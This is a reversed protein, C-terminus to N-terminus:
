WDELDKSEEIMDAAKAAQRIGSVHGLLRLCSIVYAKAEPPVVPSDGVASLPWIVFRSSPSPSTSLLDTFQPISALIDFIMQHSVEKAAHQQIEARSRAVEDIAPDPEARSIIKSHTYIWGNTFLRIMRVANWHLAIRINPYRHAVGRFTWTPAKSPELVEYRYEPPFNEILLISQRDIELCTEVIKAHSPSSKSEMDARLNTFADTLAALGLVPNSLDMYTHAEDEISKFERPVRRKQQASSIRIYNAVQLFLRHGLPTEFQQKGRLRILAAAGQTHVTWQDPSHRGEFALTEFLGLLLISILTNDLIASEPSRLATNTLALADAYQRRARNMLQSDNMDMALSATAVCKTTVALPSHESTRLYLPPLYDFNSGELYSTLFFNIASFSVDPTPAVTMTCLEPFHHCSVDPLSNFSTGKLAMLSQEDQHKVERVNHEPEQSTPRSAKKKNVKRSV